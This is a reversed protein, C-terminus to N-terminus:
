ESYAEDIEKAIEVFNNHNTSIYDLYIRADTATIWDSKDSYFEELRSIAHFYENLEHTTWDNLENRNSLENKFKEYAERIIKLNSHGWEKDGYTSSEIGSSIKQFSYDMGSHFIEQLSNGMFKEKHNKDIEKLENVVFKYKDVIVELQEQILDLINVRIFKASKSGDYQILDFGDKKLSPRSIHFYYLKKDRTLKTPHGIAANRIERIKKLKQDKEFEIEFSESLHKLADQQIFLAQLIGYTSLYKAGSEKPYDIDIYSNIADKTDDIVDLSSCIQNWVNAKDLLVSQYRHTNIHERVEGALETVKYTLEHLISM